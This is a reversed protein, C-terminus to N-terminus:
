ILEGQRNLFDRVSAPFVEPTVLVGEAARAFHALDKNFLYNIAQLCHMQWAADINVDQLENSVDRVQEGLGAVYVFKVNRRGYDALYDLVVRGMEPYLDFTYEYGDVEVTLSDEEVPYGRLLYSSRGGDRYETMSRKIIPRRVWAEFHASVGNILEVLLAQQDLSPEQGPLVYSRAQEYTVLAKESLEM